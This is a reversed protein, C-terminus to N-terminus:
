SQIMFENFMCIEERSTNPTKVPLQEVLDDFTLFYRLLLVEQGFALSHFVQTLSGLVLRGALLRSLYHLVKSRICKSGRSRIRSRGITDREKEM